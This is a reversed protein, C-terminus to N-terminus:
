HYVIPKYQTIKNRIDINREILYLVKFTVKDCPTPRDHLKLIMYKHRRHPWQILYLATICNIIKDFLNNCSFTILYLTLLHLWDQHFPIIRM